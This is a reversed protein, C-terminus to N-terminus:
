DNWHRREETRRDEQRRDGHRADGPIVSSAVPRGVPATPRCSACVGHRMQEQGCKGCRPVGRAEIKKFLAELRARINDAM